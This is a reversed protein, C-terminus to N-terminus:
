AASDLYDDVDIMCLEGTRYACLDIYHRNALVRIADLPTHGHFVHEIGEVPGASERGVITRAWLLRAAVPDKGFDFADAEWGSLLQELEDWRMGPMEAHTLGIRHGARTETEIALPLARIRDLLVRYSDRSETTIWEGGNQLWTDINFLNPEAIAACAMVEHNGMISHFWPAELYKWYDPSRDGRDFLDGVVLLRDREVDFSARELATDLADYMGHIDGCVFDRGQENRPLRQFKSM